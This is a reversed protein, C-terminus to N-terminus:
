RTRHPASPATAPNPSLAYTVSTGPATIANVAPLRDVANASTTMSETTTAAARPSDCAVDPLRWLRHQPETASPPIALAYKLPASISSLPVRNTKPTVANNGSRM